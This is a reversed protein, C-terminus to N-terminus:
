MQDIDAILIVTEKPIHETIEDLVQQVSYVWSQHFAERYNHPRELPWAHVDDVIMMEYIEIGYDNLDWVHTIELSPWAIQTVTCGAIEQLPQEIVQGTSKSKKRSASTG